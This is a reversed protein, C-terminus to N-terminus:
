EVEKLLKAFKNEIFKNFSIWNEEEPDNEEEYQVAWRLALNLWTNESEDKPLIGDHLKGEIIRGLCYINEMHLYNYM